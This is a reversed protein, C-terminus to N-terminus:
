YGTPRAVPVPQPTAIATPTVAAATRNSFVDRAGEYVTSAVLIGAAVLFVGALTGRMEHETDQQDLTAKNM